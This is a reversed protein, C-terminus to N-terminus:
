GRHPKISPGIVLTHEKCNRKSQTGLIEEELGYIIFNIRQLPSRGLFVQLNSALAISGKHLILASQPGSPYRPPSAAVM